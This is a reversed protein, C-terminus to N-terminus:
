KVEEFSVDDIWVDAHGPFACLFHLRVTVTKAAPEFEFVMPKWDHNDVVFESFLNGAAPNYGDADQMSIMWYAKSGTANAIKVWATARYKHGPTARFVDDTQVMMGGPGEVKHLHCSAKGSHAVTTDMEVTGGNGDPNYASWRDLGDEFGPNAVQTLALAAMDGATIPPPEYFPLAIMRYDRAKLPVTMAGGTIPLKEGTELDVGSDVVGALGMAAMNPRVVATAAQKTTNGVIMLCRSKDPKRYVSVYCDKTDCKVWTGSAWYGRFECDAIGFMRRAQYDRLVPRPKVAGLFISTDHLETLMLLERTAADDNWYKVPIDPLIVPAPGWRGSMHEARWKDLPVIDMFHDEVKDGVDHYQEGDLEIQSFSICPVCLWCSTHQFIIPAKRKEYLLCYMRKLLDRFPWIKYEQQWVGQDDMYGCGHLPNSCVNWSGDIYIGDIGTEDLLQNFKWIYYQAFSSGPCVWYYEKLPIDADAERRPGPTQKANSWEPGFVKIEPSPMGDRYKGAWFVIQSYPLIKMPERGPYLALPLGRRQCDTTYKRMDVPDKPMLTGPDDTGGLNNFYGTNWASWPNSLNLGVLWDRWGEPMPRTPTSQLGFTTTWPHSIVFPRDMMRVRMTASKPDRVVQLTAEKDNVQWGKPSEAFWCLGRVDDGMWLLPKFHSRLGGAPLAGANTQKLDRTIEFWHYYLANAPKFPVRLELGDILVPKDTPSITLDVRICGDYELHSKARIILGEVTATSDIDVQHPAAKFEQKDARSVVVERGGTRLVLAIPGALMEGNQSAAQRPFLSGDFDYTRGWCGVTKGAVAMPTWPPPIKDTIGLTNNEWLARERIIKGLMEETLPPPAAPAPQDAAALLVLGAMLAACILARM